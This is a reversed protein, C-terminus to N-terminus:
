YLADPPWSTGHAADLAEQEEWIAEDELLSEQSQKEEILNVQIRLAERVQEVMSDKIIRQRGEIIRDLRDSEMGPM